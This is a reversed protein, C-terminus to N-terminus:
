TTGCLIAIHLVIFYHYHNQHHDFLLFLQKLFNIVIEPLGNSPLLPPKVIKKYAINQIKIDRAQSGLLYKQLGMLTFCSKIWQISLYINRFPNIMYLYIPDMLQTSLHFSSLTLGLYKLTFGHLHFNQLIVLTLM